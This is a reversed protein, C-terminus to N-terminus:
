DAFFLLLLLLLFRVFLFLTLSFHMGAKRPLNWFWHFRRSVALKLGSLEELTKLFFFIIFFSAVDEPNQKWCKRRGGKVTEETALKRTKKMWRLTTIMEKWGNLTIWADNVILMEVKLETKRFHGRLWLRGSRVTMMFTRRSGEKRGGTMIKGHPFVFLRVLSPHDQSSILHSFNQQGFIGKWIVTYTPVLWIEVNSRVIGQVDNVGLVDQCTELCPGGQHNPVDWVLVRRYTWARGQKQKERREVWDEGENGDFSLSWAMM